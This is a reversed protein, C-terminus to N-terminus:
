SYTSLILPTDDTPIGVQTTGVRALVFPISSSFYAFSAGEDSSVGNSHVIFILDGFIRAKSACILSFIALIPITHHFVASRNLRSIRPSMASNSPLFIPSYWISASPFTILSDSAIFDGCTRAKSACILSFIALIPAIVERCVISFNLRSIRPSM